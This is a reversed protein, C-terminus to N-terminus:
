KRQTKHINKTEKTNLYLIILFNTTWLNAHKYFTKVKFEALKKFCYIQVHNNFILMGM